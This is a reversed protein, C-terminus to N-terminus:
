QLVTSSHAATWLADEGRIGQSATHMQARRMPLPSSHYAISLLGRARRNDPPAGRMRSRQESARYPGSPAVGPWMCWRVRSTRSRGATHRCSAASPTRACWKMGAPWYLAPLAGDDKSAFATAKAAASSTPPQRIKHTPTTKGPAQHMTLHQFRFDTAGVSPPLRRATTRRVSTYLDRQEIARTRERAGAPLPSPPPTTRFPRVACRRSWASYTHM